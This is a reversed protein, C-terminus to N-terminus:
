MRRQRGRLRRLRYSARYGLKLAGFLPAGIRPHTALALLPREVDRPLAGGPGMLRTADESLAGNMLAQGRYLAGGAAAPADCTQEYVGLLRAATADWTLREGSRRISGINREREHEDRMLELARDGSAAPDWAVLTAADDDLLESLSTGAAWMCPVAHAAAEFPVLGFGEHVTPYLVLRARALLWAKEAESVAGLEIVARALEPRTSLMRREDPASSGHSVHPGALVLRGQWGHRALLEDLMRLAFLRNKHRYDNGLCLLMEADGPLGAVGEPAAPSAAIRHDVGLAVVSARELEVLEEDLADRRAHQSFFLVWDAVALATRTLERYGEWAPRSAFYSPNQYGILDQQTIVVRDALSSLFSLDGPNDLQYPRHVVDAHESHQADAYRILAVNPLAALSRAAQEDVRDTVIASLKVNGTRALAAIVELVHLQTGTMTQSLIRADIIVSLGELVRRAHRLSRTLAAADSHSPSAAPEHGGAPAGVLVDDALVHCLGAELCRQSFGADLPGGALEAASRRVYTSPGQHGGIRPRLRLSRSRVRAAADSVSLGHPLAGSAIASASAVRSDCYAAERLGELWGDAVASGPRLLVVDAPATIELIRDRDRDRVVIIKVNEPTNAEVSALYDDSAAAGWVCVVVDGRPAEIEANDDTRTVPM